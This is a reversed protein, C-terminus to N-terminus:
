STSIIDYKGLKLRFGSLKSSIDKDVEGLFTLLEDLSRIVAYYGGHSEIMKEFDKQHASQVGGKSKKVEVYLVIPIQINDKQAHGWIEIDAKGKMSNCRVVRTSSNGRKNKGAITFQAGNVRNFDVRFRKLFSIIISQVKAEPLILDGTKKDISARM